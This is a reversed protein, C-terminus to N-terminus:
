RWSEMMPNYSPTRRNNDSFTNGYTNYYNPTLPKFPKFHYIITGM